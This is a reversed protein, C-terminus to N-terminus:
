NGRETVKFTRYSSNKYYESLDLEKHDAAFRKADFTSRSTSTWSVKYRDTDGRGAEGLFAKVKNAAEDKLKELEKIQATIAMYQDLDREYAFLNVSDENSEPYITTLTDTTSATGDAPPPTETEVYKWFAEESEALAKIEDEDREIEFVKFEKGLVLVALYWKQCGTVMLYHVCQVYYTDPFAGNKFNKLNLVSTTKCELGADEGVVMRDVNAHAFPYQPNTLLFNERRVKKGTEETFRKAVYDELDRGLRMAENDEKPPIKGLKDAWVTYPSSWPNLGIISPADSGGISKQRQELWDEHSMNLTSIKVLKSNM